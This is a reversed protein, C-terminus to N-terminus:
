EPDWYLPPYGSYIVAADILHEGIERHLWHDRCGHDERGGAAQGAAHAVATVVKLGPPLRSGEM